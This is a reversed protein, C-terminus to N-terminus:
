CIPNKQNEENVRIKQDGRRIEFLYQFGYQQKTKKCSYFGSM